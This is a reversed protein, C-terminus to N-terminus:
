IAVRRRLKRSIQLSSFEMMMLHGTGNRSETTLNSAMAEDAGCRRRIVFESSGFGECVVSRPSVFAILPFNSFYM